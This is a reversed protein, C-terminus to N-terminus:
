VVAPAARQCRKLRENLDVRRPRTEELAIFLNVSFKHAPLVSRKLTMSTLKSPNWATTMLVLLGLGEVEEPASHPDPSTSCRQNHHRSTLTSQLRSTLTLKEVLFMSESSKRVLNITKNGLLSCKTKFWRSSSICSTYQRHKTWMLTWWPQYTCTSKLKSSM